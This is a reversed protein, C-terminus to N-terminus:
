FPFQEPNFDRNVWDELQAAVEVIDKVELKGAAVMGTVSGLCSQRIILTQKRAREEPTEYNGGRANSAPNAAAPSNGDVKTVKVWQWYGNDEKEVEVDYQEGAKANRMLEYAEKNAFQMIKKTFEKGRDTYKVPVQFSNKGVKSVSGVENITIRSGTM